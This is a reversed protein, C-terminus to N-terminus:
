TDSTDAKNRLISLSFRSVGFKAYIDKLEEKVILHLVAEGSKAKATPTVDEGVRETSSDLGRWIKPFLSTGIHPGEVPTEQPIFTHQLPDLKQPTLRIDELTV